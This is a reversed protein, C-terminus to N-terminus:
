SPKSILGFNISCQRLLNESGFRLNTIPLLGDDFFSKIVIDPM